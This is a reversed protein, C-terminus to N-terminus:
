ETQGRPRAKLGDIAGGAVGALPAISPRFLGADRARGCLM